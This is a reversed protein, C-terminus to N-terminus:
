KRSALISWVGTGIALLLLGGFVSWHIVGRAITNLIAAPWVGQLVSATAIGLIAMALIGFLLCLNSQMAGATDVAVVRPAAVVQPASTRAAVPAVVEVASSGEGMTEASVADDEVATEAAETPSIVDLLEAGLSTDDSEQTLDLLGSGSGVSELEDVGSSIQTEGLPDTEVQLEDDDFVNIGVKTIKTDEKAAPKSKFEGTDGSPELSIISSGSLGLDPIEDDVSGAKAAPLAIHSGSGDDTPVLDIESSFGTDDGKSAPLDEPFNELSLEQPQPTSRKAPPPSKAKPAQSDDALGIMSGSGGKLDMVSSGEGFQNTSTPPLDVVPSEDIAGLTASSDALSKLASAFSDNEDLNIRDPDAEDANDLDVISSGNKKLQEVEARKYFTKGGDRYERLSGERVYGKVQEVTKGLAKCVDDISLFDNQM